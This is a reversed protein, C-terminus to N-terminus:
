SISIITFTKLLTKPHCYRTDMEAETFYAQKMAINFATVYNTSDTDGFYFLIHLKDM